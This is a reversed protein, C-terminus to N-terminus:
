EDKELYIKTGEVSAVLQDDKLEFDQDDGDITITITDGDAEWEMDNSETYIKVSGEGGKEVEITMFDKFIKGEDDTVSIKKGDEEVAVTKWTGVFKGSCGVLMLCAAVACLAVLMIKKMKKM